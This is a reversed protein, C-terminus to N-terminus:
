DWCRRVCHIKPAASSTTNLFTIKLFESSYRELNYTCHRFFCPIKRIKGLLRSLAQLIIMVIISAIQFEAQVTFEIIESSVGLDHNNIVKYFSSVLYDLNALFITNLFVVERSLGYAEASMVGPPIRYAETREKM